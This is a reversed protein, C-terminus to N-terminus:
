SGEVPETWIGAAVAIEIAAIVIPHIVNDGGSNAMSIEEELAPIMAYRCEIASLKENVNDM